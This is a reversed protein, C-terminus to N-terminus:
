VDSTVPTDKSPASHAGPRWTGCSRRTTPAAPRWDNGMRRLLWRWCRSQTVTSCQWNGARPVTGSARVNDYGTSALLKGDPSFTVASVLNTHGKFTFLEQGTAIQWVKVTKDWSATALRQSDPSYAM